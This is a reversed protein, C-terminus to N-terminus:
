RGPLASEKGASPKGGPLSKGEPPLLELRFRAAEAPPKLFIVQYEMSNGPMIRNMKLKKDEGQLLAMSRLASESSEDLIKDPIVRGPYALGTGLEKGEQSLLVVRIGPVMQTLRDTNHVSGSILLLTGFPYRRWEGQAATLRYASFWDYRKFTWWDTLSALGLGLALMLFLMSFKITKSWKVPPAEPEEQEEADADVVEEVPAEGTDWAEEMKIFAAPPEPAPTPEPPPEQVKKALREQALRMMELERATPKALALKPGPGVMTEDDDGPTVVPPVFGPAPPPPPPPPP